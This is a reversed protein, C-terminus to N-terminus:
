IPTSASGSATRSRRRVSSRRRPRITSRRSTRAWACCTSTRRWCLRARAPEAWGHQGPPVERCPLARGAGAGQGRVGRAAPRRPAVLVAAQRRGPRPGPLDARDGPRRNRLAFEGRFRGVADEGWQLSRRSCWRPIAARHAAAPGLGRLEARLERYNFIEGNYCLVWRGDASPWPQVARERDVIRLRQVGALLDDERVIEEIEGRPELADLM